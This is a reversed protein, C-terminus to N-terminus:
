RDEILSKVYETYSKCKKIQETAEPVISNLGNILTKRDEAALKQDDQAQKLSDTYNSLYGDLANFFRDIRQQFDDDLYKNIGEGIADISM